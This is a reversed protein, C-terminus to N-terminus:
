FVKDISSGFNLQDIFIDSPEPFYPSFFFVLCNVTVCNQVNKTPQNTPTLPHNANEEPYWSPVCFFM